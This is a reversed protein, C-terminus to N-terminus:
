FRVDFNMLRREQMEYLPLYVVTINFSVVPDMFHIWGSLISKLYKEFQQIVILIYTPDYM